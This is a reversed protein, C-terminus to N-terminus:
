FDQIQRLRKASHRHLWSRLGQWASVFALVAGLLWLLRMTIGGLSGIHLPYLLNFARNGTGSDPEASSELARRAMSDYSVSSRGNPHLEKEMRVRLTVPGGKAPAPILVRPTAGPFAKRTVEALTGRAQQLQPGTGNGLLAVLASQAQKHFIVAAGTAAAILLVPAALIGLTHHAYLRWTRTPRRPVAHGISWRRRWPWWWLYIGISVLAVIMIGFAGSIITGTEGALLYHHLEFILDFIRNAGFRDPLPVLTHPDYLATRYHPLYVVFASLAEDPFKISRFSGSPLRQALLQAQDIVNPPPPGLQHHVLGLIENKFLLLSGTASAMLVYLVCLLGLTRHLWSFARRFDHGGRRVAGRRHKAASGPPALLAAHRM